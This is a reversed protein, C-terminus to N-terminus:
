WQKLRNKKKWLSSFNWHQKICKTNYLKYRVSKIVYLHNSRYNPCNGKSRATINNTDIFQSISFIILWYSTLCTVLLVIIDTKFIEVSMIVLIKDQQVRQSVLSWTERWRWFWHDHSREFVDVIKHSKHSCSQKFRIKWRYMCKLALCGTSLHAKM